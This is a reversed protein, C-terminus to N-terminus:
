KKKPTRTSRFVDGSILQMEIKSFIDKPCVNFLTAPGLSSQHYSIECGELKGMIGSMVSSLRFSFIDTTLIRNLYLPALNM